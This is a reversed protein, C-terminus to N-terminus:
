SDRDAEYPVEIEATADVRRWDGIAHLAHLIDGHGGTAVAGVAIVLQERHPSMRL